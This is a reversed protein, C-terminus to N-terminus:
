IFNIFADTVEDVTVQDAVEICGNIEIEKSM